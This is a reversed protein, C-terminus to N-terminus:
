SSHTQIWDWAVGREIESITWQNAALVCAWRHRDLVSIIEPKALSVESPRAIAWAACPKLCYGLVGQLLAEFAVASSHAVVAHVNEWDIPEAVAVQQKTMPKRRFEVSRGPTFCRLMDIVRACFANATEGHLEYWWDSQLAVVIRNHERIPRWPRIEVGLDRFRQDSGVGIGSHQMANYTVRFYAKDTPLAWRSLFYGNDIYFYPIGHAEAHRLVHVTTDRRAGAIVYADAGVGRWQEDHRVVEVDKGHRRAGDNFAQLLMRETKKGPGIVCVIRKIHRPKLAGMDKSKRGM